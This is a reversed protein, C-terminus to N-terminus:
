FILFPITILSVVMRIRFYSSWHYSRLIDFVSFLNCIGERTEGLRKTCIYLIYTNILHNKSEM